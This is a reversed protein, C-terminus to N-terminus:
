LDLRPSGVVGVTSSLKVSARIANQHRESPTRIVTLVCDTVPAGQSKEAIKQMCTLLMGMCKEPTMMVEEGNYM